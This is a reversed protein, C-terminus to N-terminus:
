YDAETRYIEKYTGKPLADEVFTDSEAGETTATVIESTFYIKFPDILEKGDDDLYKEADEDWMDEDLFDTICYPDDKDLIKKGTILSGIFRELGKNGWDEKILKKCDEIDGTLEYLIIYSSSSSNTVFDTRLKM